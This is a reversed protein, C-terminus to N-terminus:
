YYIGHVKGDNCRSSLPLDPTKKIKEEEKLGVREWDGSINYGEM